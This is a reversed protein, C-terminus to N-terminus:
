LGTAIKLAPSKSAKIRVSILRVMVDGKRTDIAILLLGCISANKEFLVFFEGSERPVM